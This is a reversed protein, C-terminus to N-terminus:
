IVLDLLDVVAIKYGGLKKLYDELEEKEVVEVGSMEDDKLDSEEFLKQAEQSSVNLKTHTLLIINTSPARILGLFKISDIYRAELGLEEKIETKNRLIIDEWGRLDAVELVGGIFDIDNATTSRGSRKGFIFKGDSTEIFGGISLGNGYYEEGLKELDDKAANLSSRIHYKFKSLVLNLSNDKTEFSNLRYSEGDYIIQGKAKADSYTKDWISLLTGELTKDLKRNSTDSITISINESHFPGKLIVKPQIM